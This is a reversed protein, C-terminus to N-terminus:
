CVAELRCPATLDARPEFVTFSQNFESKLESDVFVGTGSTQNFFTSDVKDVPVSDNAEFKSSISVVFTNCHIFGSGKGWDENLFHHMYTCSFIYSKNAKGQNEGDYQIPKIYQSLTM